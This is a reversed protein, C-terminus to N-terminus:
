RRLSKSASGKASLPPRGAPVSAVAHAEADGSLHVESPYRQRQQQVREAAHEAARDLRDPGDGLTSFSTAHSRGDSSHPRLHDASSPRHPHGALTAYAYADAAGSDTLEATEPIMSVNSFHARLAGQTGYRALTDTGPKRALPPCWEAESLQKPQQHLDRRVLPRKSPAAKRQQCCCCCCWCIESWTGKVINCGCICSLAVGMVLWLALIWSLYRVVWGPVNSSSSDSSGSTSNTSSNTSSSTLAPSTTTTTNAAFTDFQQQLETPSGASGFAEIVRFSKVVIAAAHACAGAHLKVCNLAPCLQCQRINRVPTLHRSRQPGLLQWKCM